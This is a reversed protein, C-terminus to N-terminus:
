EIKPEEASPPQEETKVEVTSEEAKPAEPAPSEETKVEEKPKAGSKGRGGAAAVKEGSLVGAKVLLNHVSPSPQAGKQIWSLINEKKLNLSKDKSRPDYNGVIELAKGWPDKQKEQVVLRYTPQKKKGVRTLRIVLM